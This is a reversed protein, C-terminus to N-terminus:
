GLLRQYVDANRETYQDYHLKRGHLRKRSNQWAVAESTWRRLAAETEPRPGRGTCGCGEYRVGLNLLASVAAWGSNDRKPPAHFDRGANIM